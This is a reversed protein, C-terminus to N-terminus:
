IRRQLGTMMHILTVLILIHVKAVEHSLSHYIMDIKKTASAPQKKKAEQELSQNRSGILADAEQLGYFDLSGEQFLRKIQNM